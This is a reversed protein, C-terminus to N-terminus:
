AYSQELQIAKPFLVNNELHVHIHLDDEFEELKDYYAKFTNCAWEPPTYDNTLVRIQKFIEGAIEHEYEMMCIPNAVTGFPPPVVTKNETQAKSLLRLYPFLIMEEKQLHMELEKFATEALQRITLLPPHNDGHVRCVKEAYAKLLPIAELVYKHHTNVIYEALEGPSYESFSINDEKSAAADALEAFLSTTDIGKKSAAAAVTVNGGCCFDIGYKKFIHACKINEAVFEAVKKEKM